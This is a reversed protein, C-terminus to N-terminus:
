VKRGDTSITCNVKPTFTNMSMEHETCLLRTAQGRQFSSDHFELKRIPLELTQLCLLVPRLPIGILDHIREKVHHGGNDVRPIFPIQSLELVKM